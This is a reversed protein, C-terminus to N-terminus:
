MVDHNRVQPTVGCAWFVPVEGKHVTVADGYDPRGLDSIGLASADGAYVPRGHVRPYQATM